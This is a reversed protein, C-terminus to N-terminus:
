VLSSPWHGTRNALSFHFLTRQDFGNLESSRCQGNKWESGWDKMYSFAVLSFYALLSTQRFPSTFKLGVLEFLWLLGGGPTTWYVGTLVFQVLCNWKVKQSLSKHGSLVRQKDSVSKMFYFWNYECKWAMWLGCVWLCFQLLSWILSVQPM